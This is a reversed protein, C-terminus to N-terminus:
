EMLCVLKAQHMHPRGGCQAEQPAPVYLASTSAVARPGREALPSRCACAGVAALVVVEPRPVTSAPGRGGGRPVSLARHPCAPAGVRLGRGTRQGPRGAAWGRRSTGPAPGPKRQCRGQPVLGRVPYPVGTSPGGRTRAGSRRPWGCPWPCRAGEPGMPCGARHSPRTAARGRTCAEAQPSVRRAPAGARPALFAAGAHGWWRPLLGLM